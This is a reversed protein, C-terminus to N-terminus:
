VKRAFGTLCIWGAGSKLKGWTQGSVVKEEVVPKEVVKEVVNTVVKEVVMHTIM